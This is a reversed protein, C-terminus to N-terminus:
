RPRITFTASVVNVHHPRENPALTIPGEINRVAIALIPDNDQEQFGNINGWEKIVELCIDEGAMSGRNKPTYVNVQMAGILREIGECHLTDLVTSGWSLSFVAYTEDSKKPTEGVNDFYINNATLGATILALRANSEFLGRCYQYSM